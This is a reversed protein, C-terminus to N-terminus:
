AYWKDLTAKAQGLAEMLKSLAEGHLRVGKKTPAWSDGDPPQWYNRLDIYPEGNKGVGVKLLTIGDIREFEALIEDREKPNAM